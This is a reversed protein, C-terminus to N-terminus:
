RVSTPAGNSDVYVPGRTLARTKGYSGRELAKPTAVPGPTARYQQVGIIRATESALELPWTSYSLSKPNTVKRQEVLDVFTRNFLSGKKALEPYLEIARQVSEPAPHPTPPPAVAPPPSCAIPALFAISLLLLRKRMPRNKLSRHGTKLSICPM